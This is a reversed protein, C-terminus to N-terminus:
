VCGIRGISALGVRRELAVECGPQSGAQSHFLDDPKRTSSSSFRVGTAADEIEIKCYSEPCHILVERGNAGLAFAVPYEYVNAHYFDRSLQRVIKGRRLLLGTTGTRTYLVTFEGSPSSVAADFKYAYFVTSHSTTGNLEYRTGGSAWDIVTNGDWVLSHVNHAKIQLETYQTKM